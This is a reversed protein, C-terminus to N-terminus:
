EKIYKINDEPTSFGWIGQKEYWIKDLEDKYVWKEYVAREVFKFGFRNAYEEDNTTILVRDDEELIVTFREGRYVARLYLEYAQELEDLAVKKVFNGVRNKTFGELYIKGNNLLVYSKGNEKNTIGARFTKGGYIAYIGSKM